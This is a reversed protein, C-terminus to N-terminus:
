HFSSFPGLFRATKKSRRESKVSQKPAPSAKANDGATRKTKKISRIKPNAATPSLQAAIV